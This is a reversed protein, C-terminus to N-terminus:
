GRNYIFLIAALAILDGSLFIAETMIYYGIAGGIITRYITIVSWCLLVFISICKGAIFLPIYARYHNVDLWLFLAMLPFLAGPAIFALWPFFDLGQQLYLLTFALLIIRVCEYVFLGPKIIRM